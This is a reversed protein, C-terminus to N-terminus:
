GGSPRDVGKAEDDDAAGAFGTAGWGQVSSDTERAERATEGAWGTAGWGADLDPEDADHEADQPRGAEGPDRLDEM